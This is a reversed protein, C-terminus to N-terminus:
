SWLKQSVSAHRPYVKPNPLDSTYTRWFMGLNVLNLEEMSAMSSFHELNEKLNLDHLVRNLEKWTDKLPQCTKTNSHQQNKNKKLLNSM